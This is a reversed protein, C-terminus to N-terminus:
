NNSFPNYLFGHSFKTKCGYQDLIRQIEQPAIFKNWHHTGRPIISIFYEAIIIAVFWSTLTKNITTLFISGGPKLIKVCELIM